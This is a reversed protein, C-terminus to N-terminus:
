KKFLNIISRILLRFSSQFTPNIIKENLSLKAKKLKKMRLEFLEPHIKALKNVAPSFNELLQNSPKAYIIMNQRYWIDVKKNNWFEERLFDFAVYGHKHFLAQWYEPWQENIHNQGEQYPVAASFIIIDGHKTLSEIFAAASTEPLHEAVELSMVLDFRQKLDFPRTLDHPSFEEKRLYRLLLNVNVYPNDIGTIRKVGAKKFQSLWTGIGCGVDLVSAPNFVQMLYPVVETAAHVNHEEEIHKYTKETVM